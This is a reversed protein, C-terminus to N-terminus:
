CASCRRGRRYGSRVGSNGSVSAVFGDIRGGGTGSRRDCDCSAVIIGAQRYAASLNCVAIGNHGYRQKLGTRVANYAAKQLHRDGLDAIGITGIAAAQGEGARLHDHQVYGAAAAGGSSIGYGSRSCSGYCHAQDCVSGGWRLLQDLGTEGQYKRFLYWYTQVEGSLQM